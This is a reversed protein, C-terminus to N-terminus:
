KVQSGDSELTKRYIRDIEFDVGLEDLNRNQKLLEIAEDYAQNKEHWRAVQKIRDVILTSEVKHEQASKYASLAESVNDQELYIDGIIIEYFYPNEDPALTKAKLRERIHAKYLEIAKVKDGAQRLQMAQQVDSLTTNQCAFFLIIVLCLSYKAYTHNGIKM